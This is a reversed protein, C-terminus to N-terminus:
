TGSKQANPVIAKGIKGMIYKECEARNSLCYNTTLRGMCPLPVALPPHTTVTKTLLGYFFLM